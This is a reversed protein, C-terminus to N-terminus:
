KILRIKKPKEPSTQQERTENIKIEFSKPELELENKEMNDHSAPSRARESRQLDAQLLPAYKKFVKKKLALLQMDLDTLSGNEHGKKEEHVGFRKELHFGQSPYKFRMEERVTRVEEQLKNKEKTLEFIQEYNKSKDTGLHSKTGVLDEFQREAEEIKNELTQLRGKLKNYENAGESREGESEKKEAETGSAKNEHSSGSENAWTSVPFIFNGFFLQTVLFCKM